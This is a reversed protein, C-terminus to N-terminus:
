NSPQNDNEARDRLPNFASLREIITPDRLEYDRLVPLSAMQMTANAERMLPADPFNRVPLMQTDLVSAPEVAIVPGGLGTTPDAAVLQEQAADGGGHNIDPLNMRLVVAGAVAAASAVGLALAAYKPPPKPPNLARAVGNLRENLLRWAQNRLSREGRWEAFDIPSVKRDLPPLDQILTLDIIRAAAIKSGWERMYTQSRADPSWILIIADKTERAEELETVSQRGSLLRVRHEEAELLRTLTEALKYADHSCIIRVDIM